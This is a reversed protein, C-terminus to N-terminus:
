HSCRESSGETVESTKDVEAVAFIHRIDVSVTLLCTTGARRTVAKIYLYGHVDTIDTHAVTEIHKYAPVM